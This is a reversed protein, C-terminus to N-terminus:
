WGVKIKEEIKEREEEGKLYIISFHDLPRVALSTTWPSMGWGLCSSHSLSAKEERWRSLRKGEAGGLPTGPGSLSPGEFVEDEYGLKGMGM